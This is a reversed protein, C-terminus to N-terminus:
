SIRSIRACAAGCRSSRPSRPRSRPRIRCMASTATSADPSIACAMSSQGAPTLSKAAYATAADEVPALPSPYAFEAAAFPVPFGDGLIADRVAEWPPGPDAAATREVEVVADLIASFRAHRTEVAIHHVVNGFHDVFSYIRAPKPVITLDQGLCRQGGHDLPTVRLVHLGMDVPARYSYTTEHRVAYRTM